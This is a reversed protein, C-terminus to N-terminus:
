DKSQNGEGKSGHSSVELTEPSRSFDVGPLQSLAITLLDRAYVQPATDVEKAKKVIWLYARLNLRVTLPYVAM